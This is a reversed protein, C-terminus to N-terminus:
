PRAPTVGEVPVWRLPLQFLHRFRDGSRDARAAAQMAQRGFPIRLRMNKGIREAPPQCGAAENAAFAVLKEVVKSVIGEDLRKTRPWRQDVNRSLIAFVVPSFHLSGTPLADAHLRVALPRQLFNSVFHLRDFAAVLDLQACAVPFNDLLKDVFGRFFKRLEIRCFGPCLAVVCKSHTADAM